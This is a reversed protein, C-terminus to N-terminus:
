MATFARVHLKGHVNMDNPLHSNSLCRGDNQYDSCLDIAQIYRAESGNCLHLVFETVSVLKYQDWRVSINRSYFRYRALAVIM